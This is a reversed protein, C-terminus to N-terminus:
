ETFRNKIKKMIPLYKESNNENGITCLYRRLMILCKKVFINPIVTRLICIQFKCKLITGMTCM